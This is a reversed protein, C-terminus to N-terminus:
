QLPFIAEIKTVQGYNDTFGIGISEVEATMPKVNQSKIISNIDSAFASQDDTIDAALVSFHPDFQSFANPSGYKEFSERKVPINKAWSPVDSGKYRLVNLKYIVEDSLKQLQSNKDVGLLIWNGASLAFDSTKVPFKKTNQAIVKVHEKIKEFDKIDYETLYLTLHVPHTELFPKLNFKTVLCESALTNNFSRITEEVNPSCKVFVNISAITEKDAAKLDSITSIFITLLTLIVPTSIFKRIYQKKM